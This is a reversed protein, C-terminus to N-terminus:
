SRRCLVCAHPLFMAHCHFRSPMPWVQCISPLEGIVRRIDDGYGNLLVLDAEDVVLTQLSERLNVSGADGVM